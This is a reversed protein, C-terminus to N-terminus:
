DLLGTQESAVEGPREERDEERGRGNKYVKEVKTEEVYLLFLFVGGALMARAWRGERGMEGREDGDTGTAISRKEGRGKVTAGCYFRFPSLGLKKDRKCRRVDV